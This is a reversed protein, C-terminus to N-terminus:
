DLTDFISNILMETMKEDDNSNTNEQTKTISNPTM